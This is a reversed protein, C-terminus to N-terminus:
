RTVQCSGWDADVYASVRMSSSSPFLIGQGLSSKLYQLLHYIAHLHPTRPKSMFQSLHNVIFSNDPHSITLYMLRRILRCYQSAHELPVSDTENLQLNPDMHVSQPKSAAFSTDTLLQLSYKRQCLHIERPSKAIELGLFYKLDGIVKIKFPKALMQQTEAILKQDPGVIIIDDIYVLLTVLTAGSGRTFLFHNTPCQQFGQDLIIISFEHLWQRSAQLM